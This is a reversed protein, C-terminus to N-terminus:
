RSQVVWKALAEVAYECRDDGKLRTLYSSNNSYTIMENVYGDVFAKEDLTLQDYFKHIGPM